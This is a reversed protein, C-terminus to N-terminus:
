PIEVGYAAAVAQNVQGDLVRIIEQLEAKREANLGHATDLAALAAQQALLQGVPRTIATYRADDPALPPIPIQSIYQQIFRLYGGRYEPSLQRYFFQVTDSNL